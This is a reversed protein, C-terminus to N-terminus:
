RLVNKKMTGIVELELDSSPYIRCALVVGEQLDEESIHCSSMRRAEYEGSKVAVKCVGCGGGRCGSPIGRKGLRCMGQLVNEDQRCAFTEDIETLKIEFSM